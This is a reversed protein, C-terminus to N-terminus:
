LILTKLRKGGGLHKAGLPCLGQSERRGRYRQCQFWVRYTPPTRGTNTSGCTFLHLFESLITDLRFYSAKVALYRKSIKSKKRLVEHLNQMKICQIQTKIKSFPNKVRLFILLVSARLPHMENRRYRTFAQVTHLIVSRAWTSALHVSETHTISYPFLGEQGNGVRHLSSWGSPPVIQCCGILHFTHGSLFQPPNIAFFPGM